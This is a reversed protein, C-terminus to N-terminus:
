ARVAFRFVYEALAHFAWAQAWRMYPVRNMICRGKRFFFQGKGDHMNEVMWGAVRTALEGDRPGMGSFFAVAQASAHIDL